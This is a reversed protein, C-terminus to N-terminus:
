KNLLCPADKFNSAPQSANALNWNSIESSFTNFKTALKCFLTNLNKGWFLM